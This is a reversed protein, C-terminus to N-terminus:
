TTSPCEPPFLLLGCGAVGAVVGVVVAAVVTVVVVVVVLVVVIVVVVLVVVVNVVVLVVVVVVVVVVSVGDFGCDLLLLEHKPSVLPSSQRLSLQTIAAPVMSLERSLLNWKRGCHTGM